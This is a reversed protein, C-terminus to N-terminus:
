VKELEKKLRIELIKLYIIIIMVMSKKDKM